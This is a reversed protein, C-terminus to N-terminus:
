RGLMLHFLYQFGYGLALRLILLVATSIGLGLSYKVTKSTFFGLIRAVLKYLITDIQFLIQHSWGAFFLLTVLRFLMLVIFLNFFFAFFGWVTNLLYVVIVMPDLSGTAALSNFVQSLMGLLAVAVVPSFDLMGFHLWSIGRFKNLYPDTVQMLIEIGRGSMRGQFWSLLVRFIILLMYVSVAAALFRFVMQLPSM